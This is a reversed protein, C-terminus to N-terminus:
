PDVCLTSRRHHCHDLQYIEFDYYCLWRNIVVDNHKLDRMLLIYRWSIASGLRHTSALSFLPTKLRCRKTIAPGVKIRSGRNVNVDKVRDTLTNSTVIHTSM